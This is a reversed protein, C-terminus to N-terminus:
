PKINILELDIKLSIGRHTFHVTNPTHEEDRLVNMHVVDLMNNRKTARYVFFNPKYLYIFRNSLHRFKLKKVDPSKTDSIRYDQIINLNQLLIRFDGKIVNIIRPDSFFEKSSVVEFDDNRYKLDLLTLGFESMFVIHTSSDQEQNKLLILGSFNFSRFSIRIKYLMLNYDVALVSKDALANDVLKPQNSSYCPQLFYSSLLLFPILFKMM